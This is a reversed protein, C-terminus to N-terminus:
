LLCILEFWVSHLSLSYVDLLLCYTFIQRTNCSSM